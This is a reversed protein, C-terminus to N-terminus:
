VVGDRRFLAFPTRLAIALDARASLREIYALDIETCEHMLRGNPRETVQWLGTLGPKVAHRAHQWSKYQMVIEVMEPRPGVLSMDGRLVNCLQPLEDLSLKRLWRGVRTHRPDDASKHTRRRDPGHFAASRRGRRDPLMTRFKLMHFTRGHRGVRAQRLLIPSGVSCSVAVATLALLPLCLVLLVGAVAHDLLPKGYREYASHHRAGLAAVVHELRLTDEDVLPSEDTRVVPATHGTDTHSRAIAQHGHLYQDFVRQRAGIQAGAQRTTAGVAGSRTDPEASMYGRQNIGGLKAKGV